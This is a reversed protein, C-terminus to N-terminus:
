NGNQCACERTRSASLLGRSAGLGVLNGFWSPTGHWVRRVLGFRKARRFNGHIRRHTTRDLAKLNAPHNVIRRVATRSLGSRDLAKRVPGNRRILWHHNEQGRQTHGRSRLQQSVSKFTPNSKLFGQSRQFLSLLGKAAGGGFAGSVGALLLDSLSACPNTLYEAGAGLGFGIIQATYLGEPDVRMVPSALAYNFVGPGDVFALPDGQIYRGTEADYHRHWNYYLGTEPQLWQGPLGLNRGSAGTTTHVAGFPRYSAEWIQLKAQDYLAVPRHLHDTQVYMLASGSGGAYDVSTIPLSVATEFSRDPDGSDDLPLWIHELLVAGTAEDMEAILNGDLDYVYQVGGSPGGPAQTSRTALQQLANYSYSAWPAGGRTVSVPRGANNYTFQYDIGARDDGTINGSADHTFSRQPAGAISIDALRNSGPQYSCDELTTSTGDNLSKSTRNGTGDYTYDLTGWPGAASQLRNAPSYAFSQNNAPDAPDSISTINIQDARAYNRRDILNAGDKLRVAKIEQNENRDFLIKLDNGFKGSEIGGFPDYTVNTIVTQFAADNPGKTTIKRLRGTDDDYLHKVRRGSPYIM